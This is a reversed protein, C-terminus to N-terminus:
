NFKYALLTVRAFCRRGSDTFATNITYGKAKLKDAARHVKNWQAKTHSFKMYSGVIQVDAKESTSYCDHCYKNNWDLELAPKFPNTCASGGCKRCTTQPNKYESMASSVSVVIDISQFM